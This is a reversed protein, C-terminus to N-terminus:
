PAVWIGAASYRQQYWWYSTETDYERYGEGVPYLLGDKEGLEPFRLGTLVARVEDLLDLAGHNAGDDSARLGQAGVWISVGWRRRQAGATMPSDFSSTDYQVLLASDATPQYGRLDGALLGISPGPEIGAVLAARIKEEFERILM